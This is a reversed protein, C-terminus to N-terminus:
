VRYFCYNKIIKIEILFDKEFVKLDKQFEKMTNAKDFPTM